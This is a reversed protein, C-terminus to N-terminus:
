WAEEEVVPVNQELITNNREDHFAQAGATNTEEGPVAARIKFGRIKRPNYGAVSAPEDREYTHKVVDGVQITPHTQKAEIWQWLTGGAAFIRVRDGPTAPQRNDANGTEAGEAATVIGYLVDQTAPKGKKTLKPITGDSGFEYVPQQEIDALTITVTAGIHPLTIAPVADSTATTQLITM